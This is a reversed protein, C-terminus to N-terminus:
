KVSGEENESRKLLCHGLQHEIWAQALPEPKAQGLELSGGLLSIAKTWEKELHVQELINYLQVLSNARSTISRGVITSNSQLNPCPPVSRTKYFTVNAFVLLYRGMIDPFSKLEIETFPSTVLNYTNKMNV